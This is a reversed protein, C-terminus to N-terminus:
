NQLFGACQRGFHYYWKVNGSATLLIEQQEVEKGASPTTLTRHMNKRRLDVENGWPTSKKLFERWTTASWRVKVYYSSWGKKM